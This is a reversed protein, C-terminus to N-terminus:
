VRKKLWSKPNIVHFKGKGDSYVVRAIRSNLIIRKCMMCPESLCEKACDDSGSVYITSGDLEHVAARIIANAEAHVSHCLEYREGHPIQLEKRTCKGVDLCDKMGAPAGNYGTSVIIHDKTIVAGYKRRLCTARTSVAKAIGIFYEDWGPRKQEKPM